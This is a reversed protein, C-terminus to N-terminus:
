ETRRGYHTGSTSGDNCLEAVAVCPRIYGFPVSKNDRLRRRKFFSIRYMKDEPEKIVAVCTGAGENARNTKKRKIKKETHVMVPAVDKGVGKLVMDRIVDFNVQQLTSYNLTIGRVKCETRVPTNTTTSDCIKYAYNRPGGSVFEDIYEGPRLEPQMSSLRDGTEVLQPGDTPQIFLVSDTDSYLAREQLTDLYRYLHIRAGATVYAGIVENTHKLNPIQEEAIFRWSVWVVEDSAFLLIIVEFGPTVLFRYLEHPDSIMRTKTTNIRETLKGWMSNLCLKALGRKAANLSISGKDLLIGESDRFERVYRDEDDPSRVWSPYGSAEAKLKLFTNVYEVFLGGEGTAPNYMTIDYQYVEFVDIVEYEKEVALRVEDLVWVGTLARDAISTHSCEARFNQETACTRCLCFLLKSDCRFPLVPHYLAKPPLICKILGEMRLMADIDRCADGVYIVPHGIPFKFYKNIFPCLRIIDTYQITEGERAKYHLLMAETRGGYLADRTRLPGQAVIPHTRLDPNRKLVDDFVCEWEVKVQYGARTIQEIRAMTQAYRDALTDGSMTSIDRSPQCTHGHLFCGLFEYVTKSEACYGDVSYNPLEPLRYERGNRVHMIACGDTREMCVLWMLAKKSYKQNLSYGGTPILGITDPKLFKKRLVKNCASAITLSELFVDVNGIEMFDRRFIQCAQRLVTVDQQCYEELVRKNDFVVGRQSEYWELFERRESEGMADTGFYEVDPISGVYNLNEKKNFHHPYWATSVSLGFAGPLKLLPMPLFLVSDILQIHHVKMSIIKVGNMLLEPRWRLLVARNLIFQLDFGGANHAIAVM